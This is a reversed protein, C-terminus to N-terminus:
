IAHAPWRHNKPITIECCNFNMLVYNIPHCFCFMFSLYHCLVCIAFGEFWDNTSDNRHVTMVNDDSRNDKFYTIKYDGSM